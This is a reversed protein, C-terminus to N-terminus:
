ELEIFAGPQAFHLRHRSRRFYQENRYFEASQATSWGPVGLAPLPQLRAPELLFEPLHRALERDVFGRLESSELGLRCPSVRVFLAMSMLRPHPVRLAELLGHGFSLFRTTEHLEARRDWLVGPWDLAALGHFVSPDSSVVLVGSEDLHTAANERAGRRGAQGSLQIGHIASKLLPFHLWILAGFLDHYSGQRTPIRATSAIFRDFGGAERVRASDEVEFAFWPETQGPMGRALEPLESPSPFRALARLRQRVVPEIISFAPHELFHTEFAGSM